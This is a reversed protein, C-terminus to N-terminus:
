VNRASRIPASDLASTCDTACDVGDNLQLFYTDTKAVVFYNGPALGGVSYTDGNFNAFGNSVLNGYNDYVFTQTNANAGLPGTSSSITGHISGLIARM